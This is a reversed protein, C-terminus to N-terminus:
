LDRVYDPLSCVVSYVEEHFEPNILAQKIESRTGLKLPYEVKYGSSAIYAVAELYWIYEDPMITSHRVCLKISFSEVSSRTREDPNDFREYVPDFENSELAESDMQNLLNRMANAIQQQLMVHFMERYYVLIKSNHFNKHHYKSKLFFSCKKVRTM